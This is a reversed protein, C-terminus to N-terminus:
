STAAREDARTFLDRFLWPLTAGAAAFVGVFILSAQASGTSAKLYGFGYPGLFSGLAGLSNILAFGGAAASGGLKAMPAPWFAVPTAFIMGVALALLAFSLWPAPIVPSLLVCGCAVGALLSLYTRCDGSRDLARGMLLMVVLGVGYPAVCLLGIQFNSAAPFHSRALQPLWTALGFPVSYCVYTFAYVWVTPAKVAAAFSTRHPSAAKAREEQLIQESLRVGTAGPLWAADAPREPLLKWFMIALSLLVAPLGQLIFLWRWGALGLGSIELMATSLPGAIINAVASGIMLMSMVRGRSTSGFFRGVYLFLAPLFGGEAVGLMFRWVSLSATDWSSATGAAVLGWLLMVGVLWRTLGMREAILNGPVEFLAYGIFFVGAVFGFGRSGISLDSNMSLAAYGINIRDIYLIVQALVLIPVLRRLILDLGADPSSSEAPTTTKLM